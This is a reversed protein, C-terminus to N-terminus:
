AYDEERCPLWVTFITGRGPRSSAVITGRHSDVIKKVIALGLGMGGKGRRDGSSKTTTFPDFIRPLLEEEIGPGNDAVVVEISPQIVNFRQFRVTTTIAPGPTNALAQISNEYLNILIQLFQSRSGYLPPAALAELKFSVGSEELQKSLISRAEEIVMAVDFPEWSSRRDTAFSSVNDIIHTIRTIDRIVISRFEEDPEIQGDQLLSALTQISVLPNRLEHALGAALTGLAILKEAQNGRRELSRALAAVGIRLCLAEVLSRDADTFHIRRAKPGLVLIGVLAEQSRIAAALEIGFQQRLAQAETDSQEFDDVYVSAEVDLRPRLINKLEVPIKQQDQLDAFGIKSVVSFNESWQDRLLFAANEVGFADRVAQLGAAFMEAEDPYVGIKQVVELFRAQRSAKRKLFTQEVLEETWGKLPPVVLFFLSTVIVAWAFDRLLEEGTPSSGMAGRVITLSFVFFTSMSLVLVTYGAGKILDIPIASPQFRMTAYGMLALYVAVLGNGLPLIEVGYWLPFNTAGGGFGILYGVLLYLCYSREPGALNAVSRYLLRFAFGTFFAFNVLFLWFLSGAQPWFEFGMRPSVGDVIGDTLCLLSLGIAVVLGGLVSKPRAQGVIQTSLSFFTIPIFSAGVMLLRCFFEAAGRDDALQWFFYASAWLGVAACFQALSVARPNKRGAVFASFILMVAALVTLLASITAYAKM